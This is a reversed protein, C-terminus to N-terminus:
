PVSSPGCLMEAAREQWLQSAEHIGVVFVDVVTFVVASFV